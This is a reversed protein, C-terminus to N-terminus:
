RRITFVEKAAEIPDLRYNYMENAIKICKTLFKGMFHNKINVKYNDFDFNKQEYSEIITRAAIEGYSLAFHIGGGFAPEVGAADGVLLINPESFIFEKEPWPIPHSQWKYQPIDINRKKLEDKFIKKMSSKKNRPKVVMLDVIGHGITSINNKLCPVHWLYGQIGENIPNLNILIKKDDFEKDYKINAPAFVELTPSLHTKTKINMKKRVQSLAGDAGVLVNSSYNGRNTEIINKNDIRFFNIFSENEHINIGRKIASKLLAHDFESRQVMRFSGEQTLTFSNDQYIFEVDSVIISPIELRIGLKKLVDESWGGVGGGCLKERPHTKQELVLTNEALEPNHKNLHLWTSIGAPGGGVIIIEYNKNNDKSINM